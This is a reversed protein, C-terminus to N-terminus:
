QIKTKLKCSDEIIRTVFHVEGGETVKEKSTGSFEGPPGSRRNTRNAPSDLEKYFPPNCMCFDYEADCPDDKLAGCLFDGVEVLKM